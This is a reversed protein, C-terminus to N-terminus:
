KNTSTCETTENDTQKACEKLKEIRESATGAVKPKKVININCKQKSECKQNRFRPVTM